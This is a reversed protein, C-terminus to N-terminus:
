MPPEKGKQAQEAESQEIQDLLFAFLREITAFALRERTQPEELSARWGNAPGDGAPIHVKWLRLLYARYNISKSSM